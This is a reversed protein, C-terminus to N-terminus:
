KTENLYDYLIVRLVSTSYHKLNTKVKLISQSTIWTVNSDIMKIFGNGIIIFDMNVIFCPLMFTDDSALANCLASVPPFSQLM